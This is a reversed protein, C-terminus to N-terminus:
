YDTLNNRHPGDRHEVQSWRLMKKTRPITRGERARSQRAARGSRERAGCKREARGSPEKAERQRVASESQQEAKSEREGYPAVFHSITVNAEDIGFADKESVTSATTM